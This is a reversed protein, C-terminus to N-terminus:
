KEFWKVTVSNLRNSYFKQKFAGRIREKFKEYAKKRIWVPPSWEM